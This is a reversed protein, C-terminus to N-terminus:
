RRCQKEIFEIVEIAKEIWDKVRSVTVGSNEDKGHAIFHRNSMISNIADDRGEERMFKELEDRWSLSFAAATELFVDAKPNRIKSLKSSIFNAVPQSVQNSAYETYLEKIANELLGASIICIYKAWHAQIEINDGCADRTSSILERLRQIQRFVERNRM